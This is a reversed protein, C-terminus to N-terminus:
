QKSTATKFQWIVYVYHQEIFLTQPIDTPIPHISLSPISMVSAPHPPIPVFGSPFM